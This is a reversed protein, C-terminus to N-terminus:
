ETIRPHIEPHRIVPCHQCPLFLQLDQCRPPSQVCPIPFNNADYQDHSNSSTCFTKKKVYPGFPGRPALCIDTLKHNEKSSSTNLM